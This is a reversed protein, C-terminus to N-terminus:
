LEFATKRNAPGAATELLQQVTFSIHADNQIDDNVTVFLKPTSSLEAIYMRIIAYSKLLCFHYMGPRRDLVVFHHAVKERLTEDRLTADTFQMKSPLDLYSRSFLPNLDELQIPNTDKRAQWEQNFWESDVALRHYHAYFQYNNTTWMDEVRRVRSSRTYRALDDFDREQMLTVLARDMMRPIHAFSHTPWYGPLRGFMMQKNYNSFRRWEDRHTRQRCAMTFFYAPRLQCAACESGAPFDPMAPPGSKEQLICERSDELNESYFIPEFMVTGHTENDSPVVSGCGSRSLRQERHQQREASIPRFYDFFSVRRGWLMDNNFYVFFRSLGPIRHLVSEIAHSNFTPLADPEDAPFIQSHLVINIRPDSANLWQPVQDQDAVVIHVKRVLGTGVGRHFVTRLSYLLENWDRFRKPLCSEYHNCFRKVNTVHSPANNQVFTYVVDLFPEHQGGTTVACGASPSEVLRVGASDLFLHYPSNEDSSSASIAAMVVDQKKGAGVPLQFTVAVVSDITDTLASPRCSSSAAPGCQTSPRAESIEQVKYLEYSKLLSRPSWGGLPDGFSRRQFKSVDRHPKLPQTHADHNMSSPLPNLDPSKDTLSRRAAPHATAVEDTVFLSECPHLMWLLSFVIMGVATLLTIACRTRSSLRTPLSPATTPEPLPFARRNATVAGRSINISETLMDVAKLAVALCARSDAPLSDSSLLESSVVLRIKKSLSPDRALYRNILARLESPSIASECLDCTARSPLELSAFLHEVASIPILRDTPRM